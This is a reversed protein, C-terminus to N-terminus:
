WPSTYLPYPFKSVFVPMIKLITENATGFKDAIYLKVANVYEGVDYNGFLSDILTKRHLYTNGKQWWGKRKNSFFPDFLDQRNKVTGVIDAVGKSVMDEYFATKTSFGFEKIFDM